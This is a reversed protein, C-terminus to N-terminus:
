AQRVTFASRIIKLEKLLRTTNGSYYTRVEVYWDKDPLLEPVTGIIQKPENVALPATVRIALDPSGPCVFFVGSNRPDGLVKFADGGLVFIGNKTVVDNVLGTTVDTIEAIYGPSDALGLIVVEVRDLANRLAILTRYHIDLGNKEPDLAALASDFEGRINVYLTFLGGFNVWFGDSLQYVVERLVVKM